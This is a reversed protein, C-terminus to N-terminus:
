AALPIWFRVSTNRFFYFGFAVAAFAAYTAWVGAGADPGRTLTEVMAGSVVPLGLDCAVALLYRGLFAVLYHPQSICQRWIFGMIAGVPAKLPRTDDNDDYESADSM